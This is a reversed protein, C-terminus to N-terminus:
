ESTKITTSITNKSPKGYSNYATVEVRYETNSELGNFEQTLKKSMPLFYFGSWVKYSRYINGTAKNYFEYKYSHVIEDQNDGKINKVKAQDITLSCSNNNISDVKIGSTIKFLPKPSAEVRNDTYKYDEKGLLTDIVWDEGIYEGSILDLKRIKVKTGNVDLILMQSTNEGKPPITGYIMGPELEIYTNSSTNIATFDKQYISRPDNLPFHSHGSFHIVQPYNSLLDKLDPTYWDKTGYVTDKLGHHSFVFIPRTPDESTASDLQENLWKEDLNYRDGGYVTTSSRPSLTIFHYGNIVRNARPSNGTAETFSLATNGDHNGMSVILNTEKLKNKQVISKFINYESQDGNDTIDGVISIAHIKPDLDYITRFANELRGNEAARGPGVHTDSLVAFRLNPVEKLQEWQSRDKNIFRSTISSVPLIPLVITIIFAITIIKVLVKEKM